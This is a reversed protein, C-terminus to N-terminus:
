CRSNLREIIKQADLRAQNDVSLIDKLNYKKLPKHKKMTKKIVLPIDTFKIKKDLFAWVAVENAANLVIPYTCGKKAAQYALKLCPFKSIDAELFTMKNSKIFDVRQAVAKLREPYSLAYEIPLKMDPSALQALISGDSFEVMSHIIAEPHILVKIKDLPMSFLHMAEIVELGKNMLTASDITIKKGMSWKPHNLAEKPTINRLKSQPTKMLPGGSGTLYIRAPKYKKGELCQFIASHESDVPIITAKHKQALNMVIKGAMVLSEKNALAITKSSKIAEILPLLASAGSIAMIIIDIDKRKALDIVAKNGASFETKIKGISNKIEDAAKVDAMVAYDPKYEKIQRLFKKSQKCAVLAKIEFDDKFRKLVDLASKGISGTSGFIAVKKTKNM